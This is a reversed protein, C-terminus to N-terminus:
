QAYIAAPHTVAKEALYVAYALPFQRSAQEAKKLDPHVFIHRGPKANAEFLYVEGDQDVGLDFGVEGVTGTVNREIAASLDLAARELEHHIRKKRPGAGFIEEITKVEGGYAIHTTVSGPGAVKAAITSILWDGMENKNAHVRFDVPRNQWRHLLIGEQVLFHELGGDSLQQRLLAHLSQFFRLRNEKGDHFRCFYGQGDRQKIIQQIGLGLSGGAPKLFVHRYTELMAEIDTIGPNKKTEPLYPRAQADTQLSEHMEWKNFFGPNFWPILYDDQLKRKVHRIHSLRETRRNPLRDYIVDPFPVTCQKWGDEGFFFGEVTGHEWNMHHAGFVFCFTGVERGTSLFKAFFRTREGVPRVSDDTFGATFMGILPGLHLVEDRCFVHINEEYPIHLAHWLDDSIRIEETQEHFLVRCPTHKTSLALWSIDEPIHERLHEPLQVTGTKEDTKKVPLPQQM